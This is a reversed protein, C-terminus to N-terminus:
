SEESATAAEALVTDVDRKLNEREMEDLGDYFGRIKMSPDVLVFKQSHTVPSTADNGAEGVALLFGKQCLEHIVARQGTLFTWRKPDAGVAKGYNLLVEPSDYAPDVTFCVLHVNARAPDKLFAEQLKGFEATQAPCTMGCRTFIFTAIWPRGELDRSGFTKSDQSVLSFEPVSQVVPLGDSSSSGAVGDPTCGSSLFAMVMVVSLGLLPKRACKHEDHVETKSHSM